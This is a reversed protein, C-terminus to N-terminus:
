CSSEKRCSNRHGCTDSRWTGSGAQAQGASSGAAPVATEVCERFCWSVRRPWSTGRKCDVRPGATALMSDGAWDSDGYVDLYKPVGRRSYVWQPQPFGASRKLSKTPSQMFSAVTKTAHLIEPGDLAVYMVSGLASRFAATEEEWRAEPRRGASDCWHGKHWSHRGDQLRPETRHSSSYCRCGGRLAKWQVLLLERDRGRVVVSAELVKVELRKMMHAEVADLDVEDAEVLVHDVWCGLTGRQDGLTYMLAFM